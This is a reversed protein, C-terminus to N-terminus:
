KISLNPPQTTGEENFIIAQSSVSELFGKSTVTICISGGDKGLQPISITASATATTGKVTKNAKAIAKGIPNGTLTGNTGALYVNVTDGVKLNNITVIDAVIANNVITVIASPMATKAEELYKKGLTNMNTTEGIKDSELFTKRTVSVFISGSDKGLDPISVTASATVSATAAGKEIKDAKATATGLLSGVSIDKVFNNAPNAPNATLNANLTFDVNFDGLMYFNGRTEFIAIYDYFLKRYKNILTTDLGPTEISQRLKQCTTWLRDYADRYTAKNIIQGVESGEGACLKIYEYKEKVADLRSQLDGAIATTPKVAEPVSTTAGESQTPAAYVKVIDGAMLGTVKVTDPMGANNVPTEVKIDEKPTRQESSYEVETLTSENMGKRTVSVYVSGAKRDLNYVSEPAVPFDANVTASITQSAGKEVKNLKAAATGLLTKTGVVIGPKISLDVPPVTPITISSGLLTTSSSIVTNTTTNAATTTTTTTRTETTITATTTTPTITTIKSPTTIITTTTTSPPTTSSSTITSSSSSQPETTRYIPLPTTRNKVFQVDEGPQLYPKVESQPIMSYVKVIDGVELDTVTVTDPMGANNLIVEANLDITGAAFVISTSPLVISIFVLVSLVKSLLKKM